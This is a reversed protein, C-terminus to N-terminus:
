VWERVVVKAVDNYVSFAVHGLEAGFECRILNIRKDTLDLRKVGLSRRFAEPM